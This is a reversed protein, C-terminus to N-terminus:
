LLTPRVVIIFDERIRSTSRSGGLATPLSENLSRVDGSNRIRSMGTLVLLEGPRLPVTSQDTTGSVEPTQVRQQTTGSGTSVDFLGLLDTLGIGFKLIITGNDLIAPQVVLTDGTTVTGTRLGPLGGAGASSAPAPTTEQLYGTQRLNTKRAWQRNTAIMSVPRHQVAVGREALAALVAQSGGFRTNTDSSTNALITASLAGATAGALSAPSALTAGWRQSLSTFLINWNIGSEANETTSLAYVDFQLVVTRLLSANEKAIVERVRGMVDKTTTVVIRATGENLVARSGSTSGIMENITRTLSALAEIKGAETVDLGSSSQGSAGGQGSSGTSQGSLSFKFDQTGALAAIEFSETVYREILVGGDRFAWSLGLRGTVHDLFGTLSGSWRMEISNVDTTPTRPAPIPAVPAFPAGGSAGFPTPTAPLQPQPQIFGAGAFVDAKVRVPVGTLRSLREAVVNISVRGGSAVDDFNLTTKQAFVPPLVEDSQIGVTRSGYWPRVARRAVTGSTQEAAAQESHASSGPIKAFDRARGQSDLVVPASAARSIDVRARADDQVRESISPGPPTACGALLLLAVAAAVASIPRIQNANTRM